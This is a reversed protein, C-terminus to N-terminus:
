LICIGSICRGIEVNLVEITPQPLIAEHRLIRFIMFNFHELTQYGYRVFYM